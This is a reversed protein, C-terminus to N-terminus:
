LVSKLLVQYQLDSSFNLSILVDQFEFAASFFSDDWIKEDQSLWLFFSDTARAKTENNINV